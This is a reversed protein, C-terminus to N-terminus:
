GGELLWRATALHEEDVGDDEIGWAVTQAITWRRARERDLGLASTLRDLRGVVAERSPGLERGRIIPALAFEREGILPKPDIVQWREREAALVNDAHLDQHVLVQDGQTDPLDALAQMAADFLSQDLSRGAREWLEPLYGSWWAAEEALTRIPGDGPVWLRPLLDTMVGLAEDPDAASLATGPLCRELLLAHRDSDHDLLRVAGSGGWRRLAEAEFESERDPFQIKLVAPTGDGRQAPLALSAFAYGFPEGLELSWHTACEEVLHPLDTLWRRGEESEALWELGPHM